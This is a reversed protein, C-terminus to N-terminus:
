KKKVNKVEKMEKIKLEVFQDEEEENHNEIHKEVSVFNDNEIIDDSLLKRKSSM